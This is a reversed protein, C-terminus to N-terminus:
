FLLCAAAMAALMSITMIYDGIGKCAAVKNKLIVLLAGVMFSIGFVVGKTSIASFGYSVSVYAMIGTLCGSGLALVLRIDFKEAKEYIMFIPKIALASWLICIAGGATMVWLASVWGNASYAGVEFIEGICSLATSAAYTEYYASGIVSLRLWPLPIGLLPMLSFLVLLVPLTPMISIMIGTTLGKRLQEKKLGIEKGHKWAARMYVLCQVVVSVLLVAVWIFIWKDNCIDTYKM